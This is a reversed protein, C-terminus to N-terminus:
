ELAVAGRGAMKVSAEALLSGKWKLRLAIEEFKALPIMIGQILILLAKTVFSYNIKYRGDVGVINIVCNGSPSAAGLSNFPARDTFQAATALADIVALFIDKSNIRGGYYIYDVSFHPEDPDDFRGKPYTVGNGHPFTDAIEISTANSGTGVIEPTKKEIRLTGVLRRHLSITSLTECFRSKAAVDLITDYVGFIVHSVELQLVKQAPEIDIQVDFRVSRFTQVLTQPKHWEEQAFHYMCDIATLYVGLPSFRKSTDYHEDVEFGPPPTPATIVSVSFCANTLEM